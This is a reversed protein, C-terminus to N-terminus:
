NRIPILLFDLLRKPIDLFKKLSFKDIKTIIKKNIFGWDDLLRRRLFGL